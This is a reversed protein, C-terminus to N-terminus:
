QKNVTYFTPKEMGSTAKIEPKKIFNVCKVLVTIQSAYHM